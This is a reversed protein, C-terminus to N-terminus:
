SNRAICAQYEQSAPTRLTEVKARIESVRKRTAPVDITVPEEVRYEVERYKTVTHEEYLLCRRRFDYATCRVEEETYPETRYDRSVHIAYGRALNGEQTRLESTLSGLERQIPGSRCMLSTCGSMLALGLVLAVQLLRNRGMAM